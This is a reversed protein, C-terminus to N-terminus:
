KEVIDQLILNPAVRPELASPLVLCEEIRNSVAERDRKERRRKEAMNCRMDM